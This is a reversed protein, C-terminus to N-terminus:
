NLIFLQYGLQSWIQLFENFDLLLCVRRVQNGLHELGERM